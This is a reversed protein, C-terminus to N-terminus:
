NRHDPRAQESHLGTQTPASGITGVNRPAVAGAEGGPTGSGELRGRVPSAMSSIPGFTYSTIASAAAADAGQPLDHYSNTLWLPLQSSYNPHYFLGSEGGPIVEWAEVGAPDMQGVFRRTPGSGFMFSNLTNARTNHSSADVAQYGGQRAIGPLGPALDSFNGGNPINFPDSGLGHDFKIRHLKGWRYDMVDTSNGFAPAFEDSALRALAQELSSQAVSELGGPFFNLGSAGIGGRTAYNDLHYKFSRYAADGGPLNDGLGVSTLTADISNRILYSRWLTFVTAAVSNRIETADPPSMMTPDDGADYGETIGTPTGYDWTSLVDMAQALPSGPDASVGSMAEMLKPLVLEADLLKANSQVIAFDEMTIPTGSDILAKIERDVRGMRYDAYAYDLYYIGNGGPRLQNLPNNDLTTGIPDNNANTVFGSAPNIIHPMEDMPLIEFPLAQNPQPNQVPLWENDLVGTGDRIMWPFTGEVTGKSLDSRIPVENTTFYAINGEVDAYFVNQTALDFFGLSERFEELNGAQNMRRSMEAMYTPGWGAYQVSVFGDGAPLLPGHNRRPSVWTIAGQDYGVNARAITDPVGDGVGNVFYSQHIVQLPEAQGKYVTHTPLGYLNTLVQEQYVDIVDTPNVTWGWCSVNNCGLVISPFGPSTVGNVHWMEDGKPYVMQVEYWIAPTDLTIHPDNAILPYGSETHEGSVVWVNSGKEDKKSGLFDRFYPAADFSEKLAKAMEVTAAPVHPFDSYPNAQQKNSENASESSSEVIEGIGGISGLFGPISVRDDSPQFRWTDETFLTFGDFGVVAGVAQYTGMAITNNIDNSIDSLSFSAALGKAWILSDLPTWPDAKTLELANYEPPLPGSGLYANVGNDFSSTV